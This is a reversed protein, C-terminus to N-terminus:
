PSPAQLKDMYIGCATCQEAKNQQLDCKPCTMSNEEKPPEKDVLSLGDISFNQLKDEVVHKELEVVMGIKELRMKLDQALVSDVEKKVVKHAGFYAGVKDVTTNFLKAFSEQVDPLDFDEHIKGTSIVSYTSADSM